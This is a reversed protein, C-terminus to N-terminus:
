LSNLHQQIGQCGQHLNVNQKKWFATDLLFVADFLNKLSEGSCAKVDLCIKRTLTTSFSLWGDQRQQMQCTWWKSFILQRDEKSLWVPCRPWKTEHQGDASASELKLVCGAMARLLATTACTPIFSGCPVKVYGHEWLLQCAGLDCWGDALM